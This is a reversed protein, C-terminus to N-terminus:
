GLRSAARLSRLGARISRSHSRSRRSEFGASTRRSKGSNAASGGFRSLRAPRAPRVALGTETLVERSEFDECASHFRALWRAAERVQAESRYDYEAGDVYTFLAWFDRGLVLMREGTATGVVRSTPFGRRLLNQQFRLQFEIRERQPNRRYRRLVSREGLGGEVLSNDNRTSAPLSGIVRPELLPFRSLASSAARSM